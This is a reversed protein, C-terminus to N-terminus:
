LEIMGAAAVGHAAGVVEMAASTYPEMSLRVGVEYVVTGATGM